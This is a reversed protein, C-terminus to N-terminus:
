PIDIEWGVLLFNPNKIIPNAKVIAAVTTKYKGALGSLTDGKQVKYRRPKSTGTNPNVPAAPQYKELLRQLMGALEARTAGAKPALRNGTTGEMIGAGLAWQLAPIAWESIDAADAYSLINTDEGMSVDWGKYKAYRWLMVALQERTVPDGPGYTTANYGDVLGAGAAWTVGSAYWQGPRVDAFPNQATVAPAGELRYLVVPPQARTVAGQPNFTGPGTGAMIGRQYAYMVAGYFWDSEKVDTFPNHVALTDLTYVGNLVALPSLEQATVNVAGNEVKARTLVLSGKICHAVTLTQGDRGEVPISVTVSGLFVRSLSVDYLSLVRGAKDAARLLTCGADETKHYTWPQVTLTASDHIQRGEVKVGSTKDALTRSGYSSGSSDSSDSGSGTSSEQAKVTFSLNVTVAAGQDPTVTLPRSYSGVSLGAQPRVTFSAMEGPALATQSLPGVDYSTATPQTLTVNQNGTNEVTITKEAPPADNVTIAGFDLAATSARISYVPDISTRPFRATIIGSNQANTATAGDVTFFDAAVGQLTYGPKPSLTITATYETDAAFTGDAALAPSWAVTGTYQATETIAAVPLAGLAPSTVGPIAQTSIVSLAETKGETGTSTADKYITDGTVRAFFYYATDPTLGTFILGAQWGEAPATNEANKAYTVTGNGKPTAANLTISNHTKSAVTPATISRDAKQTFTGNGGFTGDGKLDGDGKIEGNNTLTVDEPVTLSSGGPIELTSGDSITLDGPLTVDGYVKGTENDFIVGGNPNVTGPAGFGAGWGGGIGASGRSTATVVANGEITVTGGSGGKGGGGTGGGIGAGSASTATVQANGKITIEGANGGTGDSGANSYCAGGGIGAGERSTAIVQASDGIIIKGGDGGRANLGAEGGIGAGYGYSSGSTAELKGSGDITLTSGDPAELGARFVDSKLINTTNEALTLTVTAGAMDFACGGVNINVGALTIAATAGSAVVIKDQTTTGSITLDAGDQVTLTNNAYTYKTNDGTVQFDGATATTIARNAMGYRLEMEPLAAGKDLAYGEPLVARLWYICTTPRNEEYAAPSDGKVFIEWTVGEISIAEPEPAPGTDDAMSYGSAGLTAPLGLDDWTTNLPAYKVAGDLEDFATITITGTDEPTANSDTSKQVVQGSTGPPTGSDKPACLECEHGCPQAEVYGCDTTDHEGRDHPCDLAYCEQGHTHPPAADSVTAPQEEETDFGCILEDMYCEATHVTHGCPSGEAYGCGIHEPHNECPPGVEAAFAAGPLMGALLTLSLAWALMRKGKM